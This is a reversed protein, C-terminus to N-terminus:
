IRIRNFFPFCMPILRSRPHPEDEVKAAYFTKKRWRRLTGTERDYGTRPAHCILKQVGPIVTLVFPFAMLNYLTQGWYAIAYVQWVESQGWNTWSLFQLTISVAVAFTILEYGWLIRQIRRPQLHRLKVVSYTFASLDVVHETKSKDDKYYITHLETAPDYARVKAKRRVYHFAGIPAKTRTGGRLAKSRNILEIQTTVLNRFREIPKLEPKKFCMNKFFSKFAGITAFREGPKVCVILIKGGILHEDGAIARGFAFSKRLREFAYWCMFIRFLYSVANLIICVNTDGFLCSNMEDVWPGYTDCSHSRGSPVIGACNIFGWTGNFVAITGTLFQIGKFVAIFLFMQWEDRQDVLILRIFFMLAQWGLGFYIKSFLSAWWWPNRIKGYISLDDPVELYLYWCRISDFFSKIAGWAGKRKKKKWMRQEHRRDHRGTQAGEKIKLRMSFSTMLEKQMDSLYGDILGHLYKRITVPMDRDNVALNCLKNKKEEVTMDVVKLARRKGVDVAQEVKGNLWNGVRSQALGKGINRPDIIQKAFGLIAKAEQLLYADNNALELKLHILLETDGRMTYYGHKFYVPASEDKKKENVDARYKAAQLDLAIQSKEGTLSGSVAVALSPSALMAEREKLSMKTTSALREPQAASSKEKGHFPSLSVIAEGMPDDSSMFDFDFVEFKLACDKFKLQDSGMYFSENWVPNLTKPRYGTRRVHGEIPAGTSENVITVKVYPDSTNGADMALLNHGSELHVRIFMGQLSKIM